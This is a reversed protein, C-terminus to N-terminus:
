EIGFIKVPLTNGNVTYETSTGAKLGKIATGLPANMSVVQIDPLLGPSNIFLMREASDGDISLTVVAGSQVTDCEPAGAIEAAFVKQREAVDEAIEADRALDEKQTDYRSQMKGDAANSADRKAKVALETAVIQANVYALWQNKDELRMNPM